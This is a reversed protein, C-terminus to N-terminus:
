LVRESKGCAKGDEYRGSLHPSFDSSQRGGRCDWCVTHGCDTCVAMGNDSPEGCDWCNRGDDTEIIGLM